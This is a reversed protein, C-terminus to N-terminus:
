ANVYVGAIDKDNVLRYEEGDTGKITMGAYRGFLVRDGVQPPNSTVPWDAYTFALPSIAIIEGATSAAQDRERTEQALIIGGKTKEEVKDPRVLVKFETPSVGSPNNSM